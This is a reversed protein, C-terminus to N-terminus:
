IKRGHHKFRGVLLMTRGPMMVAEWACQSGPIGVVEDAGALTNQVVLLQSVNSSSRVLVMNLCETFDFM